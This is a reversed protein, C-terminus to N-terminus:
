SSYNSSIQKTNQETNSRAFNLSNNTADSTHPSRHTHPQTLLSSTHSSTFAQPNNIQNAHARSLMTSNYFRLFLTPVKNNLKQTEQPRKHILSGNQKNSYKTSSNNTHLRYLELQCKTTHYCVRSSTLHRQACASHMQAHWNNETLIIRVEEFLRM